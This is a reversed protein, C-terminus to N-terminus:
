LRRLRPALFFAGVGALLLAAANISLATAVGLSTVLAGMELHGLPEIGVVFAISSRLTRLTLM